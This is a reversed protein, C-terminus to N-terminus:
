NKETRKEKCKDAIAKAFALGIPDPMAYLGDLLGKIQAADDDSCPRNLMDPSTRNVLAFIRQIQEPTRGRKTLYDHCFEGTTM